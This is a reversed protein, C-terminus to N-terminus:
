KVEGYVKRGNVKGENIRRAYMFRFADWMTADSRIYPRARSLDWIEECAEFWLDRLSEM